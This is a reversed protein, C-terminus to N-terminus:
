AKPEPARAALNLASLVPGASEFVYTVTDTVRVAGQTGTVRYTSIGPEAASIAIFELPKAPDQSFTAAGSIVEVLLPGDLPADPHAEVPVQQAVTSRIDIPM